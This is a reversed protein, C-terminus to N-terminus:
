CTQRKENSNVLKKEAIRNEIHMTGNVNIVEDPSNEKASCLSYKIRKPCNELDLVKEGHSKDPEARRAANIIM